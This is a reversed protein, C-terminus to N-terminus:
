PDGAARERVCVPCGRFRKEVREVEGTVGDYIWGCNPSERGAFGTLIQLVETTAISVVVGNLTIVAPDPLRPSESFGPARGGREDELRADDVVGQCSLCPGDPQVKSIRGPISATATVGDQSFGIEIGLDLLPILYRKCFRNLENRARFRDLCAVIVDCERLARLAAPSPFDEALTAECAAEGVSRVLQATLFRGGCDSVVGVRSARLRALGAPSPPWRDIASGVVATGGLDAVQEGARYVRGAAARDGMVVFAHPREPAEGSLFPLLSDCTERDTPSLEPSEGRHHHVLVCALGERQARNLMAVDFDPHWRMGHSTIIRYRPRVPWWERGLLVVRDCGEIVGCLLYGASEQAQTIHAKLAAHLDRPIRLEATTM